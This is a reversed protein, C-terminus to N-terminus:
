GATRQAAAAGPQPMPTTQMRSPDTHKDYLRNKMQQQMGAKGASFKQAAAQSAPNSAGFKMKMQDIAPQAISMIKQHFLQAVTYAVKDGSKMAEDGAAKLFMQMSQAFKQKVKALSQDLGQQRNDQMKQQPTRNAMAAKRMAEAPNGPQAPGRDMAAAAAAPNGAAQQGQDMAGMAAVPGAAQQQAGMKALGAQFPDQGKGFWHTGQNGGMWNMPNLKSSGFDKFFGAESLLEDLTRYNGEILAPLLSQEWCEEFTYGSYVIEKCLMDFKHAFEVDNRAECFAAFSRM